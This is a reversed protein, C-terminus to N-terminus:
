ARWNLMADFARDLEEKTHATTPTIRLRCTCEPVTPPRIAQIFIGNDKLHRSLGVADAAGGIIVPIIHTERSPVDFGAGTLRGRLYDVNEFLRRRLDDGSQVLQLAKKAAAACSPPLATTYIFSRSKNILYDIIDQSAAVFAGFCGVAKSLTGMQIVNKDDIGLHDMTGKGGAGLVGTAHADDIILIADYEKALAAIKKLPAIDGDMSFVGDTIIIRKSFGKANQLFRELIATDKHPYRRVKARTLLSADIISAHNLRDSLIIDNRGTIASILGINACYGSNYLIASQTCKFRAIAAELATHPSMTGSVLRSAGAGYGFEDIADKAARAIRLDSALGLYDNSSLLIYEKGDVRVKASQRSQVTNLRRYLHAKKLETLKKAIRKM